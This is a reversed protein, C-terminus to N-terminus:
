ATGAQSETRWKFPAAGCKPCAKTKDLVEQRTLIGVKCADCRVKLNVRTLMAEKNVPGSSKVGRAGMTMTNGTGPQSSETEAEALQQQRQEPMLGARDALQEYEPMYRADLAAAQALKRLAASVMGRRDADRGKDALKRSSEIREKSRALNERVWPFWENAPGLQESSRTLIFELETLEETAERLLHAELARRARDRHALAAGAIYVNAHCSTCQRMGVRRRGGCLACTTDLSAGCKVCKRAEITNDAGCDPCALENFDQKPPAPVTPSKDLPINRVVDLMDALAQYRDKPDPECAKGVVFQWHLPLKSLLLPVPRNGTLMEYLMAGIAYIDARHDVSKADVKQEPAAYDPTGLFWGTQSMESDTGERALGFDLLKPVGRTDIMVNAPKIDRHTVGKEHAHIVGACIGELVGAVQAAPLAGRRSLRAALTEGEVYEMVLFPGDADRGFDHVTVINPHQMRAVSQAERTFRQWANESDGVQRVRKLAVVRGLNRDLARHVAGMGGRGIIELLEYRREAGAFGLKQPKPAQPAREAKPEPETTPKPTEAPPTIALLTGSDPQDAETAAPETGPEAFTFGCRYCFRADGPNETKCQPCDM